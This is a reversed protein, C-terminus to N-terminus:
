KEARLKAVAKKYEFRMLKWAWQPDREMVMAHGAFERADLGPWVGFLGVLENAAINVREQWSYTGALKALQHQRAKKDM